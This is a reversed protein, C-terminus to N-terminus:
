RREKNFSVQDYRLYSRQALFTRIGRAVPCHNWSSRSLSEVVVQVGILSPRPQDNISRATFLLSSGNECHICEIIGERANTGHADCRAPPRNDTGDLGLLEVPGKQFDPDFQRLQLPNTMLTTERSYMPRTANLSYATKQSLRFRCSIPPQSCLGISPTAGFSWVWAHTDLLLSKM